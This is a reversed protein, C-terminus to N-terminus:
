LSCLRFICNISSIFSKLTAATTNSPIETLNIWKAQVSNKRLAEVSNEKEKPWAM